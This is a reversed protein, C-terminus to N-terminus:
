RFRVLAIEGYPCQMVKGIEVGKGGVGCGGCSLLSSINPVHM